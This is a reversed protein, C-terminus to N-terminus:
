MGNQKRWRFKGYPHIRSLVAKEDGVDGRGRGHLGSRSRAARRLVGLVRIDAVTARICAQSALRPGKLVTSIREVAPNVIHLRVGDLRGLSRGDQNVTVLIPDCQNPAAAPPEFGRPLRCVILPVACVRAIRDHNDIRVILLWSGVGKDVLGFELVARGGAGRYRFDDLGEIKREPSSHKM